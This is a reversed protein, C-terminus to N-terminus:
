FLTDAKLADEPTLTVTGDELVICPIGIGGQERVSDFLHCNKQDDRIKLFDKLNQTSIGFDCFEFPIHHAAYLRKTQVCDPCLITGYIKVM